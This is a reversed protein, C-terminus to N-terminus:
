QQDFCSLCTCQLTEQLATWSPEMVAPPPLFAQSGAWGSVWSGGPCSGPVVSVNWSALNLKSCESGAESLTSRQESWSHKWIMTGPPSRKLAWVWFLSRLLQLTEWSFPLASTFADKAPVAIVAAVPLPTVWSVSSSSGGADVSKAPGGPSSHM